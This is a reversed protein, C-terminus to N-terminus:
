FLKLQQPHHNKEELPEPELRDKGTIKGDKIIGLYNGTEADFVQQQNEEFMDKALLHKLKGSPNIKV